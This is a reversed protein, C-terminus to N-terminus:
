NTAPCCAATAAIRKLAESATRQNGHRWNEPWSRVRRRDALSQLEGPVGHCTPGTTQGGGVLRQVAIRRHEVAASTRLMVMKNESGLGPVKSHPKQAPTRCDLPRPPLNVSGTDYRRGHTLILECCRSPANEAVNKEYDSATRGRHRDPPSHAATQLQNM